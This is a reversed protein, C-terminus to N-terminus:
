ARFEGFVDIRHHTLAAILEDLTVPTGFRMVIPTERGRLTLMCWVETPPTDDFPDNSPKWSIVRTEEVAVDLGRTPAMAPEHEVAQSPARPRWEHRNSTPEPHTVAVRGAVGSALMLLEVQRRTDDEVEDAFGIGSAVVEDDHRDIVRWM